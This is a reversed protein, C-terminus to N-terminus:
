QLSTNIGVTGTRATHVVGAKNANGYLFRERQYVRWDEMLGHGMGYWDFKKRLKPWREEWEEWDMDPNNALWKPDIFRKSERDKLTEPEMRYEFRNSGGFAVCILASLLRM